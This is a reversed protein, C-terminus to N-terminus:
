STSPLYIKKLLNNQETLYGNKIFFDKLKSKKERIEVYHIVKKHNAIEQLIEVAKETLDKGVNSNSRKSYLYSNYSTFRKEDQEISFRYDGISFLKNKEKLILKFSKRSKIIEDISPKLIIYREKSIEYKTKSM